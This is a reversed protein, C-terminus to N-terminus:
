SFFSITELTNLSTIAKLEGAMRLNQIFRDLDEKTPMGEQASKKQVKLTAACIGRKLADVVSMGQCYAAAFNGCLTDGAGTTDTVATKIGPMRILHNGDCYMLGEEGLTVVLKCPYQKVCSEIDETGFITKCEQRNCFIMGIKAILECNHPDSVELKKPRCPTLILFKHNRYCFDILEEIVEKPAKLQSIVIRATLLVDANDRVMDTTFSDIAGSVRSIENDKDQAHIRIESSDNQLGNVMKVRSIDVGNGQLNSIIGAGIFDNGLKSLFTVSAGARAVAVAQNAGKGGPVSSDANNPYSGDERQYFMRDLSAGGLVVVDYGKGVKNDLNKQSM